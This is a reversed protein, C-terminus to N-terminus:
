KRLTAFRKVIDRQSDLYDSIDRVADKSVKWAKVAHKDQAIRDLEVRTEQIQRIDEEVADDRMQAYKAENIPPMHHRRQCGSSGFSGEIVSDCCLWRKTRHAICTPLVTEGQRSQCSKICALVFTGPHYCCASRHNTVDSYKKKCHRCELWRQNHKEMLTRHQVLGESRNNPSKIQALSDLENQHLLLSYRLDYQASVTVKATWHRVWATFFKKLVSSRNSTFMLKGLESRFLRMRKKRTNKVWLRKMTATKEKTEIANRQMKEALAMAERESVITQAEVVALMVISEFFATHLRDNLYFTDFRQPRTHLVSTDMTATEHIVKFKDRDYKFVQKTLIAVHEDTRKCDALCKNAHARKEKGTAVLEDVETANIDHQEQHYAYNRAAFNFDYRSKEVRQRLEHVQLESSTLSSLAKTMKMAFANDIKHRFEARQKAAARRLKQKKARIKERRLRERKEKATENKKKVPSRKPSEVSDNDSEMADDVNGSVNSSGSSLDGDSDDM